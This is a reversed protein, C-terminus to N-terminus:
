KNELYVPDINLMVTKHVPIIIGDLDVHIILVTGKNGSSFNLGTRVPHLLKNQFNEIYDCDSHSSYPKRLFM